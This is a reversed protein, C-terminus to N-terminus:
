ALCWCVPVPSQRPDQSQNRKAKAKVKTKTKNEEKKLSVPLKMMTLMMIIAHLNELQCLLCYRRPFRRSFPDVSVATLVKAQFNFINWRKACNNKSIVSGRSIPLTCKNAWCIHYIIIILLHQLSFILSFVLSIVLSLILSFRFSILFSLTIVNKILIIIIM